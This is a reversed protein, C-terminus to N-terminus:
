RSRLKPLLSGFLIYYHAPKVSSLEERPKSQSPSASSTSGSDKVSCNKRRGEKNYHWVSEPLNAHPHSLSPLCSHPHPRKVPSRKREELPDDWQNPTSTENSSHLWKLDERRVDDILREWLERVKGLRPPGGHRVSM